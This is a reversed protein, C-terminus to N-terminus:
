CRRAAARLWWRSLRLFVYLKVRSQLPRLTGFAGCSRAVGAARYREFFPPFSRLKVRSQVLGATASRVRQPLAGPAFGGVGRHDRLFAHCPLCAALSVRGFM